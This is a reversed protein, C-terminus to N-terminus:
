PSEGWWDLEDFGYEAAADDEDTNNEAMTDWFGDSGPDEAAYSIQFVGFLANNLSHGGEHSPNGADSTPSLWVFTGLNFGRFNGNALYSNEVQIVGYRADFGLSLMHDDHENGAIVTAVFDVIFVVIGLAIGPWAWPNLWSSWGLIAKYADSQRVSPIFAAAQIAGLTGAIAFGAIAGLGLAAGYFWAGIFVTAVIGLGLLMGALMGEGGGQLGGVIAGGLMAVGISVGAIAYMTSAAVGLLPALAGASLVTAAIVAVVIVAILLGEWFSISVLGTPDINVVPNNNGFAYLHLSRPRSILKEAHLLAYPDPSIFRGIKPDYYRRRFYYLGTDADFGRGGFGLHHTSGNHIMDKGYPFYERRASSGGEPTVAVVIHGNIDSLLLKDAQGTVSVLRSESKPISVSHMTKGDPFIEFSEGVYWTNHSIGGEDIVRKRLRRGRHDYDFHIQRGDEKSVSKLLQRADFTLVQGPQSIMCGNADYQYDHRLIGAIIPGQIRTGNCFLEEPGYEGNLIMNDLRDYRYQIDLADHGISGHVHTLRYLNDYTYEKNVPRYDPSAPRLDQTKTIHNNKNYEYQRGYLLQNDATRIIQHSQPTGLDPYYDFTEIVGYHYDIALRRGRVDYDINNIIGPIASLLGLPNYDYSVHHGDPYTLEKLKDNSGYRMHYIYTNELGSFARITRTTRGRQDYSFKTNGISDEVMFLRSLLNEGDGADYIYREKLVDNEKVNNIRHLADFSWNVRNGKADTYESMQGHANFLFTRTGADAHGTKVKRGMLDWIQVFQIGGDPNVISTLRGLSDRNYQTYIEGDNGEEALSIVYDWADIKQFVSKGFHASDPDNSEPDFIEAGDVFYFMRMAHGGDRSMGVIRSLADYEMFHPEEEESKEEINFTENESFFPPDRRIVDGRLNRLNFGNVSFNGDACLSRTQIEEGLGDYYIVSRSVDEEGPDCRREMVTAIPQEDFRYEFQVTPLEFSDGPKIEKEVQGLPTYTYLFSNGDWHTLAVVTGLWPDYQAQRTHGLHNRIVIPFIGSELDYEVKQSHGNPDMVSVMQGKENYNVRRVDSWYGVSGDGEEVRYYGADSLKEDDMEGYVNNVMDQTYAQRSHRKLLGKEAQGLPLGDINDGDYFFREKAFLVGSSDSITREAPLNLIWLDERLAYNFRIHIEKDPVDIAVCHGRRREFIINNFADYEFTFEQIRGETQRELFELTRKQLFPVKVSDGDQTHEPIVVDFDFTERRYPKNEDPSSDKGFIETRYLKGSLAVTNEKPMDPLNEKTGKHYLYRTLRKVCHDDKNTDEVTEVHTFGVFRRHEQDYHGDHYLIDTILQTQTTQDTKILRNIVPVSFPLFTKWADGKKLDRKYHQTSVGYHMETIGGINNDIRKLLYPKVGDTFDFYRLARGRRISQPVNFLLGSTGTGMFDGIRVTEPDAFPANNIIIPDSFRDGQNVWVFIRNGDMYIFDARGDGDVDVLFSRKPSFRDPYPGPLPLVKRTDWKLEGLSTWCEIHRSFIKVWSLMGDGTMDAMRVRPDRFDVQPFNTEDNKRPLARPHPDWGKKHDHRFLTLHSRSSRLTDVAGDGNADMFRVQPDRVNFNPGEKYLVPKDWGEKGIGPYYGNISGHSVLVDARSNGNMDALRVDHRNISAAKPFSKLRRSPLWEGSLNSWFRSTTRNAQVIGPLGFGDLDVVECNYKGPLPPTDANTQFTKLKRQSPNFDTYEFDLGPASQTHTQLGAETKEYSYGRLTVNSLLSHKAFSSQQYTLHYERLLNPEIDTRHFSIRNCRLKTLINQGSKRDSLIDPRGEYHFSIRYIAYDIEELYLNGEDRRYNYRIVNGTTDIEEELLWAFVKEEEPALIQGQATVGLRYKRGDKNTIEWGDDLKKIKQFSEDVLPRYRQGEVHKIVKDGLLFSNNDHYNVIGSSTSRRISIIPVAWGFGFPGQSGATSYALSIRPTAQRFGSPCELPVMYSGTGLNFNPQFSEGLGGIAGGGQPTSLLEKSLPSKNSKM